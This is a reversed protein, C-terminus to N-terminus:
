FLRFFRNGRVRVTRETARSREKKLYLNLITYLVVCVFLIFCVLTEIIDADSVSTNAKQYLSPTVDLVTNDLFARDEETEQQDYEMEEDHDDGSKEAEDDIFISSKM